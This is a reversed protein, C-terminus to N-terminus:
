IVKRLGYALSRPRYPKNHIKEYHINSALAYKLCALYDHQRIDIKEKFQEIDRYKMWEVNEVDYIIGRNGEVVRLRPVRQGFNNKEQPVELVSRVRDIFDEDSKDSYSTSRCPIITHFVDIFSKFGEGSRKETKGLSDIVCDVVNFGSTYKKSVRAFERALSGLAWEKIYYLNDDKDAGLLIGVNKKNPHPDIAIVCPNNPDWTDYFDSVSIIHSEKGFLHALALGDAAPFGGALRVKKEDETLYRGFEEIYGEALNDKNVETGYIFCEVEPLDGKQWPLYIQNRLYGGAIMTGIMLYDAKRRKKRGGRFLGVMIHRKPPEDFIVKDCEISEFALESQEHFMFRISSGNNWTIRNYFPKGDKHCQEEIDLDYWKEIEPLWVEAVKSPLDLVVVINAPVPTYSNKIPNYGDAAWIMEMVAMTTKGSGNGAFVFRKSATSRMVQEQGSNPKFHDRNRKARRKKERLAFLLNEKEERTLADTQSM